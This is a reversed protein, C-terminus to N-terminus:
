RDGGRRAETRGRSAVVGSGEEGRGHRGSSQAAGGEVPDGEGLAAEVEGDEEEVGGRRVGDVGGEVEPGGRARSQVVVPEIHAEEGGRERARGALGRAVRGAATAQERSQEGAGEPTVKRRAM